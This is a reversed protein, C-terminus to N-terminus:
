ILAPTTKCFKRSLDNKNLPLLSILLMASITPLGIYTDTEIARTRSVSESVGAGRVYVYIYIYICM